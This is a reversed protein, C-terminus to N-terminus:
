QGQAEFGAERALGVVHRPLAVLDEGHEFLGLARAVRDGPGLGRAQGVVAQEPGVVAALAARERLLQDGLAEAGPAAAVQQHAQQPARDVEEEVAVRVGLAPEGVQAALQGPAVVERDPEHEVRDVDHEADARAPEVFGFRTRRGARQPALLGPVGVRDAPVGRLEAGDPPVLAADGLQQRHQPFRHM